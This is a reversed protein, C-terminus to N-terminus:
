SKGICSDTRCGNRLSRRLAPMGSHSSVWEYYRLTSFDQGPDFDHRPNLGGACGALGPLALLALYWALRARKPMNM